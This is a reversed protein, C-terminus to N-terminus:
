TAVLYVDGHVPAAAETRIVIPQVEAIRLGANGAVREVYGRAHAYRGGRHLRPPVDGSADLREMTFLFLGGPAMAPALATFAPVVNGVYIFVDLALALDFSAPACGALFSAIDARELRDYIGREGAKALMGSSLDVGVLSAAKGRVIAGSLGTGCGLDVVRLGSRAELWPSLVRSAEEPGRYGLDDVLKRDFAGAFGDFFSAVFEPPPQEVAEGAIAARQFALPRNDPDLALARDLAAVADADRGSKYLLEGMGIWAEVFDPKLHTARRYADISDAPRALKALVMALANWVLPENSRLALARRYCAAAEDFRAGRQYLSGLNALAEFHQPRLEVAKRYSRIAEDMRGTGALCVGNVFHARPNRPERQLVAATCARAEELRGARVLADAQALMAEAPPASM